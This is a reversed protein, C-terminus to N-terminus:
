IIGKSSMSEGVKVCQQRKTFYTELWKLANGRIGFYPLKQLLINHSLGLLKARIYSFVNVANDKIPIDLTKLSKQWLM